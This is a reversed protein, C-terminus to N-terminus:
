EPQPESPQRCPQRPPPARRTSGEHPPATWVGVLPWFVLQAASLIAALSGLLGAARYRATLVTSALALASSVLTQVCAQVGSALGALDKNPQLYISILPAGAITQAFVLAYFCAMTPWLRGPSFCCVLWTAAAAVAQLVMGARLVHMPPRNSLAILASALIMAIPISGILLSACETSAGHEEELVFSISSLMSMPASFTLAQTLLLGLSLRRCLLRHCQQGLGPPLPPMSGDAPAPPPKPPLTEPLLGVSLLLNLLGWATLCRFVVRWGFEAGILGGIAPAIVIALPRILSLVALMRMRRAPEDIADRAIAMCIPNSAEGLGQLVRAALLWSITPAFSCGLTAVCYICFAAVIMPRRGTADSVRGLIINGVGKSVWNLQLTLGAWVTSTALERTMTPLSPIYSDTSFPGIISVSIIVGWHWWRLVPARWAPSGM